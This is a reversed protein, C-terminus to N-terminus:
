QYLIPEVRINEEGVAAKIQVMLEACLHTSDNPFEILHGRENEFIQFAFHDRGPFSIFTGHLRSIRRIDRQSDGSPRLIITIMQPPHEAEINVPIAPVPLPPIKAPAIEVPAPHSVVPLQSPVPPTEVAPPEDDEKGEPLGAVHMVLNAAGIRTATSTSNEWNPPDEPPPPGDEEMSIEAPDSRRVPIREAKVGPQRAPYTAKPAASVSEEVPQLPIQAPLTLKLETRINDVLVKSPNSQADVKGEALIVGGVELAFQYKEWTRPFVVLEITGTLDELTVWAMMKGTKTQHPRIGSVMGAVRVKEEHAAEGLNSSFYSVTRRIEDMYPTLPHESMYMGMLEREWNLVERRDADPTLPLTISETVGTHVGFLSLQGAEAARFHSSSVAVIRDLAELMAARAGFKDLAGVKILSELARKGAARLDVQSTFDNLDNFPGYKERAKCILDV